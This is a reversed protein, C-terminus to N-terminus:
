GSPEGKRSDSMLVPLFVIVAFGGAVVCALTSQMWMAWCFLGFTMLLCVMTRVRAALIRTAANLVAAFDFNEQTM